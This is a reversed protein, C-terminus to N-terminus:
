DLPVTLGLTASYSDLSDLGTYSLGASGTMGNDFLLNLGAELRVGDDPDKAVVGGGVAADGNSDLDFVGDLRATVEGMVIRSDEPRFFYGAQPGLTLRTQETTGGPVRTGTSDTYAERDIQSWTLSLNPGIWWGGPLAFRKHLRAGLSVADSDFDGTAAGISIDNWGHEYNFATDLFLGQYLNFRSFLGFGLFDSDLDSNLTNSKVDGSKYTLNGGVQLRDTLRHTVGGKLTVITGDRDAAQDDDFTTVDGAFWVDFPLNGSLGDLPPHGAAPEAHLALMGTLYVRFRAGNRGDTGKPTVSLLNDSKAGRAAAPLVTQGGPATVASVEVGTLERYQRKVEELRAETHKRADNVYNFKEIISMGAFPDEGSAAANVIRLGENQTLVSDVPTRLALTFLAGRLDGADFFDLVAQLARIEALLEGERKKDAVTFVRSRSEGETDLAGAPFLKGDGDPGPPAFTRFSDDLADFVEDTEQFINLMHDATNAKEAANANNANNGAAPNCSISAMGNTGIAGGGPRSFDVTGVTEASNPNNFTASATGDGAITIQGVNQLAFAVNLVTGPTGGTITVTFSGNQEVTIAASSVITSGATLAVNTSPAAGAQPGALGALLALMVVAVIRGPILGPSVRLGGAITRSVM